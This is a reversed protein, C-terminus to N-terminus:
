DVEGALPFDADLLMPETLTVKVPVIREPVILTV